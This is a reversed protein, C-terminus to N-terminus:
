IKAYKSGDIDIVSFAKCVTLKLQLVVNPIRIAM